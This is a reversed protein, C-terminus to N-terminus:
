LTFQSKKKNTIGRPTTQASQSLFNQTKLASRTQATAQHRLEATALEVDQQGGVLVDDFVLVNQSLHPM